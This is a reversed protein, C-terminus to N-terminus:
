WYERISGTREVEKFTEPIIWLKNTDRFYQSIHMLLRKLTTTSKHLADTIGQIPFDSKEPVYALVKGDWKRLPPLKSEKQERNNFQQDYWSICNGEYNDHHALIYRKGV